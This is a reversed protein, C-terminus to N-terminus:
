PPVKLGQLLADMLGEHVRVLDLDRKLMGYAALGDYMAMLAWTLAEADVARFEGSDIGQDIIDHVLTKYRMLLDFWLGAAEDRNPSSAWYELYLNFLGRTVDDAHAITGALARLKGAATEEAGLVSSVDDLYIEEFFARIASELLDEKSDFYWYLTGKSTESAAAIHDMTTANYGQHLFTDLAVRLIRQRTETSAPSRPAM